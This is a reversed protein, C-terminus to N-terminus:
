YHHSLTSPAIHQQLDNLFVCFCLPGCRSLMEAETLGFARTRQLLSPKRLKFRLHLALRGGTMQAMQALSIWWAGHLLLGVLFMELVGISSVGTHIIYIRPDRARWERRTSCCSVPCSVEQIRDPM